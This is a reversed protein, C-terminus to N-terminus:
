QYYRREWAGKKGKKKKELMVVGWTSLFSHSSHLYYSCGLHLNDRAPRLRNQGACLLHQTHTVTVVSACDLEKGFLAHLTGTPISIPSLDCNDATCSLSRPNNNHVSHIIM